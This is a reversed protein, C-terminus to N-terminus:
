KATAPQLSIYHVTARSGAIRTEFSMDAYGQARVDVRHVGPTLTAGRSTGDFDRAHGAYV